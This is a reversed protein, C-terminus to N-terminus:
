DEHSYSITFSDPLHPGPFYNLGPNCCLEWGQIQGGKDILQMDFARVSRLLISSCKDQVELVIELIECDREWRLELAKTPTCM